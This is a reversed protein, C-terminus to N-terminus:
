EGLQEGPRPRFGNLFDRASVRKRSELQLEKIELLSQNGCAVSMKGALEVLAGPELGDPAQGPEVNAAWIQLNKGRFTTYAGPWPRLGRVRREIEEASLKWDIRGDEKKLRPALTAVRADQPRPKIEGRGLGKLTEILLGAGLGSLKESVTETTDNECIEIELQLLIAGTDLGADIKMTTVGTTREGRILAWPIPAAGRYKPLLSAHLNICGLRPLDIMWPPLILGYAVVVMADPHFQSVFARTAPDKLKAPQFVRLGAKEAAIKVPPAKPEYGRGFPEDPNTMVLEIAFNEQLLKELTPVAFQPTGCFIVKM